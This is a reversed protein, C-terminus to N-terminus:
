KRKKNPTCNKAKSALNYYKKQVEKWTRNLTPNQANLAQVTKEWEGEQAKIILASNEGNQFVEKKKLYSSLLLRIDADTFNTKRMKKNRGEEADNAVKQRGMCFLKSDTTFDNDVTKAEM